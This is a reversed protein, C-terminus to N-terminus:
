LWVATAFGHREDAATREARAAPPETHVAVSCTRHPAHRRVLTRVPRNRHDDPRQGGATPSCQFLLVKPRWAFGSVPSLSIKAASARLYVRIRSRGAHEGAALTPLGGRIAASGRRGRGMQTCGRADATSEEQKAVPRVLSRLFPNGMGCPACRSAEPCGPRDNLM